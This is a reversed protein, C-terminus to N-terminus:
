GATETMRRVEAVAALPDIRPVIPLSGSGDGPLRGPMSAVGYLRAEPFRARCWDLSTVVAAGHPDLDHIIVEPTAMAQLSHPGLPLHTANRGNAQFVASLTQRYVRDPSIVLAQRNGSEVPGDDAQRRLFVESRDATPLLVSRGAQMRQLETELVHRAYRVPVRTSHPWVARTRGDGECWAGFCCILGAYLTAGVLRDVDAPAFQDSWSQLVVTLGDRQGTDREWSAIDPCMRGVTVGQEARLWGVLDSFETAAEQGILSVHTM